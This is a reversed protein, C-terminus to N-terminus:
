ERALIGEVIDVGYVFLCHFPEFSWGVGSLLGQGVGIGGECGLLRDWWLLWLREVVNSGRRSM